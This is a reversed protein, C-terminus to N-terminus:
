EFALHNIQVTQSVPRPHGFIRPGTSQKANWFYVDDDLCFIWVFSFLIVCNAHPVCPVFEINYDRGCFMSISGRRQRVRIMENAIVQERVIRKYMVVRLCVYFLLMSFFHFAITYGVSSQQIAGVHFALAAVFLGLMTSLIVNRGLIKPWQ